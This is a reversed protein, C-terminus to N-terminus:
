RVEVTQKAAKTVASIGCRGAACEERGHREGARFSWTVLLLVMLGWFVLTGIGEIVGQAVTEADKSM